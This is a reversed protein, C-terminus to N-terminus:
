FRVMSAISSPNKRIGHSLRCITTLWIYLRWFILEEWKRVAAERDQKFNYGYYLYRYYEEEAATDGEQMAEVM